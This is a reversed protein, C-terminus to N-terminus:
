KIPNPIKNLIIDRLQPFLQDNITKFDTADVTSNKFSKLNVSQKGKVVNNYHFRLM